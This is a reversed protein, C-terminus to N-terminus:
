VPNGLGFDARSPGYLVNGDYTVFVWYGEGPVMHNVPHSNEEIVIYKHLNAFVPDTVGAINNNQQMIHVMPMGYKGILNWGTTLEVQPPQGLGEPMGSETGSQTVGAYALDGDGYLMTEEDVKIYYGYGPVIDMVRGSGQSWRSNDTLPENYRWVNRGAVNDWKYEWLVEASELVDGGLVNDISTDDGVPVLPISFLNWEPDLEIGYVHVTVQATVVDSSDDGDNVRLAVTYVGDGPYYNNVFICQENTLGDEDSLDNSFDGDYNFDWMYTFVTDYVDSASGDFCVMHGVATEYPGGVSAVPPVNNVTIEAEDVESAGDKDTVMVAVIDDLLTDGNGCTYSVSAGSADDYVDDGDFDWLFTLPYDAAVDTATATLTITEAEDCTYEGANPNPAVNNVVVDGEASDCDEDEDCVTLTVHYTGNDAYTHVPNSETSTQGDGFNWSVTSVPDHSTSTDTFSVAVGENVPNPSASFSADPGVDLVNIYDEKTLTTSHGAEDTVMLSVTYLGDETYVTGDDENSSTDGNGFAWAYVLDAPDTTVTDSADSTCSVSLDENGTLPSCTFDVTPAMCDYVYSDVVKPKEEGYLNGHEDEASFWYEVERGDQAHASLASIEACYTDGEFNTMGSQGARYPSAAAEWYLMVSTIESVDTVDICITIDDSCTPHMPIQNVNSVVPADLDNGTVVVDDVHGHEGNGDDMWYALLIQTNEAGSPLSFSATAWSDEEVVAELENWDSWDDSFAGVKWGVRLEDTSDAAPNTRRDYSVEINSYGSTDISAYALADDELDMYGNSIVVNPPSNQPSHGALYAETWLSLDGSFDDEFLTIETPLAFAFGSVMMLMLGFLLFRLAKKM